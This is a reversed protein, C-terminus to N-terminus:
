TNTQGKESVLGGSPSVSRGGTTTRTPVTRPPSSCEARSQPRSYCADCHQEYSQGTPDARALRGDGIQQAVLAGDDDVGVLDGPRHDLGPLRREGREDLPEAVADEVGVAAEVPGRKAATANASSSLRLASSAIM